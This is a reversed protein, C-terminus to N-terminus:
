RISKLSRVTLATVKLQAAIEQRRVDSMETVTLVIAGILAILLLLSVLIFPIPLFLFLIIGLQALQNTYLTESLTNYFPTSFFTDTVSTSLVYSLQTALILTLIAVLPAYYNKEDSIPSLKLNLMMVAFLFLVAIAGLYVIIYALALFEVNLALLLAGVNAFVLILLFVSHVVNRLGVLFLMSCLAIAQFAFIITRVM